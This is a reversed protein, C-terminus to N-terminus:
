LLNSNVYIYVVFLPKWTGSTTFFVGTLCAVYSLCTGGRPLPLDGQCGMVICELIRAQLIGHVSSGAPSCEMSDCLTQCVWLSKACCQM